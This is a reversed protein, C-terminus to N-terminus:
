YLRVTVIEYENLLAKRGGTATANVDALSINWSITNYYYRGIMIKGTRQIFDYKITMIFLNISVNSLLNDDPDIETPNMPATGRHFRNDRNSLILIM